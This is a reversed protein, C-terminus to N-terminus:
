YTPTSQILAPLTGKLLQRALKRIAPEGVHRHIDLYQRLNNIGSADSVVNICPGAFWVEQIRCRLEHANHRRKMAVHPINVLRTLLDCRLLLPHVDIQWSVLDQYVRDLSPTTEDSTTTTEDATVKHWDCERGEDNDFGSSM